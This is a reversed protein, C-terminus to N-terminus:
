KDGLVVPSVWEDKYWIKDYNEKMVFALWLQEMSNFFAPKSQYLKICYDRFDGILWLIRNRIPETSNKYLVIEQLQDQRPLWIQTLLGYKYCKNADYVIDWKDISKEYLYDGHIVGNKRALGQIETAKECMKIYEKSFDM